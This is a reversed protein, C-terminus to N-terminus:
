ASVAEDTEQAERAARRAEAKARHVKGAAQGAISAIRSREEPTMRKMRLAALDSAAQNKRIKRV